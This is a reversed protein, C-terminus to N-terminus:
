AARVVVIYQLKRLLLYGLVLIGAKERQTRDASGIELAHAHINVGFEEIRRLVGSEPSCPAYGLRYGVKVEFAPQVLHMDNIGIHFPIDLHRLDYLQERKVPLLERFPIDGVFVAM